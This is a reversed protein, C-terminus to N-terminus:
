RKICIKKGKRAWPVGMDSPLRGQIYSDKLVQELGEVWVLNKEDDIKIINSPFDIIDEMSKQAANITITHSYAAELSCVVNDGDKVGDIAMWMKKCEDIYPDGYNKTKGDEFFCIINKESGPIGPDGYVVKAKEFEYYFQPIPHIKVAHTAFFLIEVGEDTNARICATDFNEITNARYLEATVDAPLASRDVRDGLVYFMNHLYHATANNAVSDLIWNGNEDKKRGAWPSRNYYNRNRSWQVITKLKQPRGLLGNSIDKKLNLIAYNHSWQYGVSVFKGSRDRAEIMRDIEEVTAAVPKECLVNTGKSLAMLTQPCHFQIPSSIIALDASSNQYFDELSSYMPVKMEELEKFFKSGMPNPDVAGVIEIDDDLRGSNFLEELYINGYGGIGVLVITAKKNSM